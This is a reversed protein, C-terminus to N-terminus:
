MADPNFKEMWREPNGLPNFSGHRAYLGHADNTALIIRRIGALDPHNIVCEVIWIGLGKGREQPSIIVDCLWGFTAYDTVVRAFGVLNGQHLIGFNLSNAVAKQITELPRTKAWYSYQNLLGQVKECSIRTPDTTIIYDGRQYEIPAM